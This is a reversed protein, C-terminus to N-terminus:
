DKAEARHLLVHATEQMWAYNSGGKYMRNLDKDNLDSAFKTINAEVAFFAQFLKIKSSSLFNILRKITLCYAIIIAFAARLLM